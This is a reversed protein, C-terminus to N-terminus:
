PPEGSLDYIAIYQYHALQAANLAAQDWVISENGTISVPAASAPM